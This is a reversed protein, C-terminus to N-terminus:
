TGDRQSVAARVPHIREIEDPAFGALAMTIRYDDESIREINYPPIPIM